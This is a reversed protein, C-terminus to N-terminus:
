KAPTVEKLPTNEGENKEGHKSAAKLLRAILGARREQVVQAVTCCRASRTTDTWLM